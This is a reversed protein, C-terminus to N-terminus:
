SAGLVLPQLQNRIVYGKNVLFFYYVSLFVSKKLGTKVNSIELKYRVNM